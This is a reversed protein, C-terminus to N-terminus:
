KTKKKPTTGTKAAKAKSGARAAAAAADEVGADASTGPGSFDRETGCSAIVSLVTAAFLSRRAIAVNHKSRVTQTISSPSGLEKNYATM